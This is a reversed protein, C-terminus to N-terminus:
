QKVEESTPFVRIRPATALKFAILNTSPVMAVNRRSCPMSGAGSLSRCVRHDFNRLAVPFAQCRSKRRTSTCVVVPSTVNIVDTEYDSM